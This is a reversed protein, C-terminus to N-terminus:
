VRSMAKFAFSCVFIIAEIEKIVKNSSKMINSIKVITM